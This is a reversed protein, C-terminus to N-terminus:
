SKEDDILVRIRENQKGEGARVRLCFGLKEPTGVPCPSWREELVYGAKVAMDLAMEETDAWVILLGTM